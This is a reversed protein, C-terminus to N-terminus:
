KENDDAGELLWFTRCVALSDCNLKRILTGEENYKLLEGYENDGNLYSGEWKKNGNEWYEEFKGNELDDVFTVVEMLQGSPYYKKLQGQMENNTYQSEIMLEGTDYYVKYLGNLLGHKYLEEKEVKGNSHYITRLGEQIGDKYMSKELINGEYNYSEYIGNKVSDKDIQYRETLKGSSDKVEVYKERACSSLLLSAIIYLYIYYKM